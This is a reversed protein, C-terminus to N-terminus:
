KVRFLRPPPPPEPLLEGNARRRPKAVPAPPPESQLVFVLQRLYMCLGELAQCEGTSGFPWAVSGAAVQALADSPRAECWQSLARAVAARREDDLAHAILREILAIREADLPRWRLSDFMARLERGHILLANAVRVHQQYHENPQAMAM